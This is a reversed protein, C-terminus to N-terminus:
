EILLKQAILLNIFQKVSAEEMSDKQLEYKSSVAQVIKEFAKGQEASQWIDAAVSNLVVPDDSADNKRVPMLIYKGYINRLVFDPNVRM